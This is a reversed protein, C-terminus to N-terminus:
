ALDKRLFVRPLYRTTGTKEDVWPYAAEEEGFVRYGQKKYWEENSKVVTPVPLGRNTYMLKVVEESVQSTGKQTDLVLVKANVPERVAMEEVQRMASGGLGYRRLPFSIFLAIPWVVGEGPLGLKRDTEPKWELGIHGIPNFFKDSPIRPLRFLSTATDQLPEKEAPYQSVHEEIMKERNPLGEDLVLWWIAKKGEDCHGRWTEVDGDGWGCAVRQLYMREAHADSRSDFPVFYVKEAM